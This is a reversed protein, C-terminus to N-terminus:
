LDSWIEDYNQFFFFKLKVHALANICEHLWKICDNAAANLICFNLVVVHFHKNLFVNGRNRMNNRDICLLFGIFYLCLIFCVNLTTLDISLKCVHESKRIYYMESKRLIWLFLLNTCFLRQSYIFLLWLIISCVYDLPLRIKLM